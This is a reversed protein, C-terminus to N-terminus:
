VSEKTDELDMKAQNLENGSTLGIDCCPCSSPVCVHTAGMARAGVASDM